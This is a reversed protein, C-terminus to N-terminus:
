IKKGEKLLIKENEYLVGKGKYPEPLKYSRIISAVQTVEKYCNSSIFIKDSKLCTITVNFPIKFYINHSYGLKLILFKNKFVDNVFSKYGIGILKIKKHFFISVELFAQKILALSTRQYSKVKKKEKNSTLFFFNPTVEITKLISNIKIQTKFILIKKSIKGIIIVINKELFYLVEVNKPIKIKYKQSYLM